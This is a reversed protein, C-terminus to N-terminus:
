RPARLSQNPQVLVEGFAERQAFGAAPQDPSAFFIGVLQASANASVPLAGRLVPAAVQESVIPQPAFSAARVPTSPAATPASRLSAQTVVLTELNPRVPPLPAATAAPVVAPAAAPAAVPAVAPAPALEAAQVAQPAEVTQPAQARTPAPLAASAFTLSPAVPRDAAAIQISTAGDVPMDAPRGDTRLTAMLIRDDSGHISAPGVYDVRVRATGADRFRLTDAVNRSVDIIRNGHFPGRDNVRVIVSHGNQLNTVRAYSPLPMTPHAATMAFRDFTEGNATSRGHFDRGYWSALGERSYNPDHQPVFTRGGVSYPRGIHARGGTIPSRANSARSPAAAPEVKAVETEIKATSTGCASLLLALAGISGARVFLGGVWGDQMM